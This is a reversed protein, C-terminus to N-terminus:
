DSLDEGIGEDTPNADLEAILRGAIEIAVRLTHAEMMIQSATMESIKVSPMLRDQAAALQARLSGPIQEVATQLLKAQQTAADADNLLKVAIALASTAYMGHQMLDSVTMESFRPPKM